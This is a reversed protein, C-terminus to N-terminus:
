EEFDLLEEGALKKIKLDAKDLLTACHAALVQSREYLAIANELTQEESELTQVIRELETFADEYSLEEVPTLITDTM